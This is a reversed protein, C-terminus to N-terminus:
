ADDLFGPGRFVPVRLGSGNIASTQLSHLYLTFHIAHFLLLRCKVM